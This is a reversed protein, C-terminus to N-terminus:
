KPSLSTRSADMAVSGLRGRNRSLAATIGGMSLVWNYGFIVSSKYVDEPPLHKSPGGHLPTSRPRLSRISAATCLEQGDSPETHRAMFTPFSSTMPQRVAM